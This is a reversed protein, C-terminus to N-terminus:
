RRSRRRFKRNYLNTDRTEIRSIPYQNILKRQEENLMMFNEPHKECYFTLSGMVIFQQDAPIDREPPPAMYGRSQMTEQCQECRPRYIIVTNREVNQVVMIPM